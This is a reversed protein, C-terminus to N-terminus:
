PAYDRWTALDRRELVAGTRYRMNDTTGAVSTFLRHQTGFIRHREVRRRDPYGDLKDTWESSTFGSCGLNTEAGSLPLNELPLQVFPVLGGPTGTDSQGIPQASLRSPGNRNLM